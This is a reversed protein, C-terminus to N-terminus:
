ITTQKKKNSKNYIKNRKQVTSPKNAKTINNNNNQNQATKIDAEKLKNNHSFSIDLLSM